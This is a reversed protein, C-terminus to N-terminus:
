TTERAAGGEMVATVAPPGPRTATPDTRFPPLGGRVAIQADASPRVQVRAGPSAVTKGTPVTTPTAALDSSSTATPADSLAVRHVDSTHVESSPSCQCSCRSASWPPRASDTAADASPNMTPPIPMEGAGSGVVVVVVVCRGGRSEVSGLPARQPYLLLTISNELRSAYTVVHVDGSPRVHFGPAVGDLGSSPVRGNNPACPHHIAPPVMPSDGVPQPAAVQTLRSPTAHTGPKLSGCGGGPGHPGTLRDMPALAVVVTPATTTRSGSPDSDSVPVPGSM